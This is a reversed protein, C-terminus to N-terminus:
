NQQWFKGIYDPDIKLKYNFNVLGALYMGTQMLYFLGSDTVTFLSRPKGLSKGHIIEHRQRDFAEILKRDFSYGANTVLRRCASM